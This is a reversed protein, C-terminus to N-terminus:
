EINTHIKQMHAQKIRFCYNTRIESYVCVDEKTVEHEELANMRLVPMEDQAHKGM